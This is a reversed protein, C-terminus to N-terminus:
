ARLLDSLEDVDIPKALHRHFGAAQSRARDAEQAFGSVAVLMLEGLGPLERLKAGVEYGDMVPLGIDLLAVDPPWRQALRLAGPGDHAVEVEHGIACLVMQLMEAADENDDVVLVRRGQTPLKTTPAGVSEPTVKEHLVSSRGLTSEVSM